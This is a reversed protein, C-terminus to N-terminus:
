VVHVGEALILVTSVCSMVCEVRGVHLIRSTFLRMMELEEYPVGKPVYYLRSRSLNLLRCQHAVSVESGQMDVLKLKESPPM